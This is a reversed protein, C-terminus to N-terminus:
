AGSSPRRARAGARFMTLTTLLTAAAPVLLLAFGWDLRTRGTDADFQVCRFRARGPLPYSPVFEGTAERVLEDLRGSTVSGGVLLRLLRRNRVAALMAPHDFQQRTVDWDFWFGSAEALRRVDDPAAIAFTWNPDHDVALHRALDAMDAASDRPDFSIVLRQVESAHSVSRDAARWAMLFPSCVGACRTFVFTLLVPRGRAADSFSVRGGDATTLTVEPLLVNLLRDEDPPISRDEAARAAPAGLTLVLAAAGAVRLARAPM